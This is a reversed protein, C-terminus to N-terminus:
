TGSFTSQAHSCQPFRIRLALFSIMYLVLNSLSILFMLWLYIYKTIVEISQESWMGLVGWWKLWEITHSTLTHLKPTLIGRTRPSGDVKVHLKDVIIKELSALNKELEYVQGASPPDSKACVPIIQDLLRAIALLTKFYIFTKHLFIQNELDYM